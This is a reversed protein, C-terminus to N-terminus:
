DESSTLISLFKAMLPIFTGILAFGALFSMGTKHRKASGLGVLVGFAAVCIKLLALETLDIEKCFRKGAVLLTKM